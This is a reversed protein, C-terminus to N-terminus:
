EGKFKKFKGNASKYRYTQLVHTAITDRPESHPSTRMYVYPDGHSYRSDLVRPHDENVFYITTGVEVESLKM